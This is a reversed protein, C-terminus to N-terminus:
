LKTPHYAVCVVCLLIIHCVPNVYMYQSSKCWDKGRQIEESCEEIDSIETFHAATALATKLKFILMPDNATPTAPLRKKPTTEPTIADAVTPHPITDEEELIEDIGVGVGAISPADNDHHLSETDVSGISPKGKHIAGYAPKFGEAKVCLAAIAVPDLGLVNDPHLVAGAGRFWKITRRNLISDCRGVAYSHLVIVHTTCFM